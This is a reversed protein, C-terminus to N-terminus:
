MCSRGRPRPSGSTTSQADGPWAEFRSNDVAQWDAETMTAALQRTSQRPAGTAARFAALFAQPTMTPAAEYVARMAAVLSELPPQDAVIDFLLPEILVLSRVLDPRTGASLLAVVAGYSHGVIHAPGEAELLEILADGDVAWGVQPQGIRPTRGFGVRDILLVRYADALDRQDPFTDLGWSFIGHVFVASPGDGYADVHLSVPSGAM